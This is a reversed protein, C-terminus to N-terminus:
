LHSDAIQLPYFTHTLQLNNEIGDRATIPAFLAPQEGTWAILHSLTDRQHRDYHRPGRRRLTGTSHISLCRQTILISASPLIRRDTGSWDETM